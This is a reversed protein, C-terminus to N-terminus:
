SGEEIERWPNWSGDKMSRGFVEDCLELAIIPADHVVELHTRVVWPRLRPRHQRGPAIEFSLCESEIDQRLEGVLDGLPGRVLSQIRRMLRASPYFWEGYARDVAFMQHINNEVSRDGPHHTLLETLGFGRSLASVRRQPGRTTFGIKILGDYARRAYYVESAIM